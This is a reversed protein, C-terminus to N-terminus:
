QTPDQCLRILMDPLSNTTLVGSSTVNARVPLSEVSWGRMTSEGHESAFSGSSSAATFQSLQDTLPASALRKSM